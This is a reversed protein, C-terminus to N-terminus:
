RAGARPSRGAQGTALDIAQDIAQGTAQDIAQGSGAREPGAAPDTPDPVPLSPTTVAAIRRGLDLGFLERLAEAYVSGNPEAALEKVRVSPTHLLKEVVRHVAHELEALVRPDTLDRLRTRLRTLEGDVVGRAMERLAVVTPAAALAQAALLHAGVEDAILARAHEVARWGTPPERGDVRGNAHGDARGDAHGDAGGDVHGAGDLSGDGCDVRDLERGLRGLDILLAGDLEGVAPDIDRPLALDLYVQGRGYRANLAAEAVPAAILHGVAGACSVVLDAERVARDLEAMSAVRGGVSAALREARDPTRNAVTIVGVGARHLTAVVLGSMTGAGLVLAHVGDLHGLDDGALRLGTQVLSSAVRDIETETHVRKGVRLAHQMLAILTGSATGSEQAATLAGRVQGLIQPEGVAMSDLGAAVAFVHEVAAAEYHVYLHETLDDLEVGTVAALHEGVAALGAHFRDVAVYVELRNCTSLVVSEHVNEAACLRRELERRAEVPLSARELLSLPATRFSLGVVLPNTM